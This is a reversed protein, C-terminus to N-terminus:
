FMVVWAFVVLGGLEWRLGDRRKGSGGTFLGPPLGTSTAAGGIGETTSGGVVVSSGGAALSVSQGGLVVNGGASLTQGGVVVGGGPLTAVAYTQSGVVVAPTTPAGVAETTTGGIVVASGGPALSLRQGAVVVTGGSTLTQGAVVIGGSPLTSIPLTQTKSLVETTSGGVVVASGGPALSITQGGVVVNGGSSLTQGAVVIGGGPLTSATYTQSGIIVAPSTPIAIGQGSSIIETNGAGTNTPKGVAASSISAGTPTTYVVLGSSDATVTVGGITAASGGASVTNGGIVYGSSSPLIVVTETVSGIQKTTTTAQSQPQGGNGASPGASSQSGSGSATDSNGGQGGNGGPSSSPTEQSKSSSQTSSSGGPKSKVATNTPSQKVEASSTVAISTVPPLTTTPSKAPVASSTTTSLTSSTPSDTSSTIVAAPTQYVTVPTTLLSVGVKLGAIGGDPKATCNQAGIISAIYSQIAALAVPDDEFNTDMGPSPDTHNWAISSVAYYTYYNPITNSPDAASPAATAVVCQSNLAGGTSFTTWTDVASIQLNIILEQTMTVSSTNVTIVQVGLEDAYSNVYNLVSPDLAATTSAPVLESGVTSNTGELVTYVMTPGDLPYVVDWWLTAVTDAFITCSCYQYPTQSTITTAATISSNGYSLILGHALESWGILFLFSWMKYAGMMM